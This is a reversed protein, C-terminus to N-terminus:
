KKLGQEKQGQVNVSRYVLMDMCFDVMKIKDLNGLPDPQLGGRGNM